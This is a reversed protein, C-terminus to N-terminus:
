ARVEIGRVRELGPSSREAQRSSINVIAGHGAEIMHPIARRSLWMPATLNVRLSAEWASTTLETVPGDSEDVASAVANNVLVTLGGLAAFPRTSSRLRLRSGRSLDAPSSCRTAM